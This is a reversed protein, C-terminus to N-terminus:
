WLNGLYNILKSVFVTILNVVYYAEVSHKNLIRLFKLFIVDSISVCLNFLLSQIMKHFSFYLLQQGEPRWDWIVFFM